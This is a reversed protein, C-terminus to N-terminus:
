YYKQERKCYEGRVHEGKAYRPAALSIASVKCFNGSNRRRVVAMQGNRHSDIYDRIGHIVFCRFNTTM